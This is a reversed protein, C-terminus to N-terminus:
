VVCHRELISIIEGELSHHEKQSEVYKKVRSIGSKSVSLIGYGDQWYLNEKTKHNIFYSTAGKIEKILLPINTEPSVSLLLHIHDMTNGKAIISAKHSEVKTDIIPYIIKEVSSNIMQEKNKAGWVIHVYIEYYTNRM